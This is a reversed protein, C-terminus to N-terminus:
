RKMLSTAPYRRCARAYNVKADASTLSDWVTAKAHELDPLRLVSKNSRRRTRSSPKQKM